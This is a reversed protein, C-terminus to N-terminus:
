ELFFLKLSVRRTRDDEKVRIKYLLENYIIENDKKIVDFKITPEKEKCVELYSFYAVGINLIVLLSIILVIVELIVKKKM